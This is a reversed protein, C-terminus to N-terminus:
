LSAKEKVRKKKTLVFLLASILVCSMCSSDNILSPYHVSIISSPSPSTDSCPTPPPHFIFPSCWFSSYVLPVYPPLYQIFLHYPSHPLLLSVSASFPSSSIFLLSNLCLYASFSFLSLFIIDSPYLSVLQCAQGALLYIYIYGLLTLALSVHVTNLNGAGPM